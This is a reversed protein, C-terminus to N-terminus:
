IDMLIVDPNIENVVELVRHCDKFSGAVLFEEYGELLFSLSDRREFNDDFIIITIKKM